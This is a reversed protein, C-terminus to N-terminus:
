RTIWVGLQHRFLRHLTLWVAMSSGLEDMGPTANVSEPIYPSGRYAKNLKCDTINPCSPQLYIPFNGM